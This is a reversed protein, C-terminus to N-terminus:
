LAAIAERINNVAVIKIGEPLGSIKQANRAPIIIKNFGMRVAEKVIKDANQVSRIEGTLGIEGLAITSKQIAISKKSSYM